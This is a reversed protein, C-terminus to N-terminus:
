RGALRKEGSGACGTCVGKVHVVGGNWRVLEDANRNAVVTWRAQIGGVRSKGRVCNVLAIPPYQLVTVAEAIFKASRTGASSTGRPKIRFWGM